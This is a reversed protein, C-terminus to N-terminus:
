EPREVPLGDNKCVYPYQRDLRARALRARLQRIEDTLLLCVAELKGALATWRSDGWDEAEAKLDRVAQEPDALFREVLSM